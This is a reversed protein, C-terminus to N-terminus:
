KKYPLLLSVSTGKGESSEVKFECQEEFHLQLRRAVNRIGINKQGELNSRLLRRCDKLKEQTMGSGNDEVTICIGAERRCTRVTVLCRRHSPLVGYKVANEILPQLILKPVQFEELGEELELEYDLRDELRNQQVVLYDRANRYEERLPVFSTQTDMSYQMLKGLAVVVNSIDMEGRDILMWNISDLSNYLFHPNIQAQLAEMEANKQAIQERYVRNILMRIQEVMYNFSDTLEGIEDGRNNELHVQFDGNQVQKMGERLRGLPKTIFLSLAMLLISAVSVCIFVLIAIYSRLSEAGPFLAEWDIIIFIIWGILGNYQACCFYRKGDLTFVFERKGQLYQKLAEKSLTESIYTECYAVSLNGDVLFNIQNKNIKQKNLVSSGFSSANLELVLLGEIEGNGDELGRYVMVIPQDSYPYELFIGESIGSWIVKGPYQKAQMYLEKVIEPDARKNKQTSGIMQNKRFVSISSIERFPETMDRCFDLFDEGEGEDRAVSAISQGGAITQVIQNLQRIRLTLSIDIRNVADAINNKGSEQAALSARSYSLAGIIISIIFLPIVSIIVLKKWFVINNFFRM